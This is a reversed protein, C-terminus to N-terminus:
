IASRGVQMQAAHCASCSLCDHEEGDESERSALMSFRACRTLRRSLGNLATQLVNTFRRYHALCSDRVVYRIRRTLLRFGASYICSGFCRGPRLGRISSSCFTLYLLM